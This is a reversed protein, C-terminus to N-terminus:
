KGTRLVFHVANMSEHREERDQAKNGVCLNGRSQCDNIRGSMGGGQLNGCLRPVRRATMKLMVEVSVCVM